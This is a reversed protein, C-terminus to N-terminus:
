RRASDLASRIFTAFFLVALIEVHYIAAADM